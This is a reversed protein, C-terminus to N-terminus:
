MKLYISARDPELRRLAPKLRAVLIVEWRPEHQMLQM